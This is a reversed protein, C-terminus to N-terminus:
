RWARRTGPRRAARPAASARPGSAAPPRAADASSVRRARRPPSRAPARPLADRGARRRRAARRASSTRAASPRRARLQRDRTAAPARQGLSRASAPSPQAVRPATTGRTEVRWLRRRVPQPRAAARAARGEMRRGDIRRDHLGGAARGACAHVGAAASMSSTRPRSVIDPGIVAAASASVDADRDPSDVVRQQREFGLAHDQAAPERRPRRGTREFPAVARQERADM